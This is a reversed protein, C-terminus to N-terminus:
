GRGGEIIRKIPNVYIDMMDDRLDNVNYKDFKTM